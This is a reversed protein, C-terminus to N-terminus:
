AGKNSGVRGIQNSTRPKPLAKWEPKRVQFPNRPKRTPTKPM